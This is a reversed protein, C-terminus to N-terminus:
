QNIFERFSIGLARGCDLPLSCSLFGQRLAYPIAEVVLHSGVVRLNLAHSGTLTPPPPPASASALSVTLASLMALAISHFTNM